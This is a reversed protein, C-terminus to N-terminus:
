ATETRARRAAVFSRVGALVYILCLVGTALSAWAAAVPGTIEAGTVLPAAREATGFAGLLAVVLAIHIVTKRRREDGALLGLVLIVLGLAAPLLATPSTGPGGSALWAVVGIVILASGIGRTLATM